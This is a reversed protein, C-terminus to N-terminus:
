EQSGDIRIMCDINPVFRSLCAAATQLAKANDAAARAIVEVALCAREVSAHEVGVFHYNQVTTGVPVHIKGPNKKTSMAIDGKCGRPVALSQEWQERLM